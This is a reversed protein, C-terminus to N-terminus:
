RGSDPTCDLLHRYDQLTTLAMGNTGDLSACSGHSVWAAILIYDDWWLRRSRSLKCYVRLGLFLTSLGALAWVVRLLYPGHNKHEAEDDRAAHQTWLRPQRAEM